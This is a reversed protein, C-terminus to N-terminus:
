LPIHCSFMVLNWFLPMKPWSLAILIIKCNQRMIKSVVKGLDYPVSPSPICTRVRRLCGSLMWQSVFQALKNRSIFFDTKPHYWWSRSSHRFFRHQSPENEIVNLQCMIHWAKLHTTQSQLLLPAQDRVENNKICSVVIINDTAILSPRFM